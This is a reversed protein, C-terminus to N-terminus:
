AQVWFDRYTVVDKLILIQIVMPKVKWHKLTIAPLLNPPPFLPFFANIAFFLSTLVSTMKGQVVFVVKRKSAIYTSLTSCPLRFYLTMFSSPIIPSFVFYYPHPVFLYFCLLSTLHTSLADWLSMPNFFLVCLQKWQSTNWNNRSLKIRSFKLIGGM